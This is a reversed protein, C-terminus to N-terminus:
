YLGGIARGPPLLSQVAEWIEDKTEKSNEGFPESFVKADGRGEDQGESKM